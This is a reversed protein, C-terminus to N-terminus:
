GKLKKLLKNIGKPKTNMDKKADKLIRDIKNIEKKAAKKKAKGKDRIIKDIGKAMISASRHNDDDTTIGTQDQLNYSEATYQANLKEDGSKLFEKNSDSLISEDDASEESYIFDNDEEATALEEVVNDNEPREEENIYREDETLVPENRELDTEFEASRARPDMVNSNIRVDHNKSVYTFASYELSIFLLAIYIAKVM